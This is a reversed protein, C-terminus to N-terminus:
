EGEDLATVGPLEAGALFELSAGGGTSVHTLRDAVGAREAAAASDGGGLVGTAGADCADAVAHAIAITGQAFAEVEFVGMPGNWVVTRAAAIERAYVQRTAPGIDAIRDDPAVQSREVVRTPVGDAIEAAVVCDVPLLLRDGARELTARALEVRDDEVLSAGTELGLARFFTNAMAGGVLLRDVRPLLADIVDIKGSIKAGGLIAVFPREPHELAGGLFRLEKALLLGAVAEGGRARMAGALGSTSAHARHAAGFADNVFLDGLAAWEAALAGDNKEDGALFRTNELLAVEGEGLAAVARRAAEGAPEPVFTVGDGLLQRLRAAVPTLSYTPDPKGKPRGLHSLLVVKAGAEKLLRLTPLSAQIRQDDAVAGGELPVNLDARVVVTRGALSAPALQAVTKKSM